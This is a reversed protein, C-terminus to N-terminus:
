CVGGKEWDEERRGEGGGGKVQNDYKYQTYHTHVVTEIGERRKKM